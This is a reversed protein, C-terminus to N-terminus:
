TIIFTARPTQQGVERKELKKKIRTNKREKLLREVIGECFLHKRVWNDNHVSILQSYAITVKHRLFVHKFIYPYM